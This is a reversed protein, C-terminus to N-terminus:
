RIHEHWLRCLIVCLFMLVGATFRTLLIETVSVIFKHPYQTGPFIGQNIYCARFICVTKQELFYVAIHKEIPFSRHKCSINARSKGLYTNKTLRKFGADIADKYHEAQAEGWTELTYELATLIDKQAEPSLILAYTM